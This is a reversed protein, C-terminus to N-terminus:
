KDSCDPSNTHGGINEQNLRWLDISEKNFRWCNGIRFAPLKNKRLYRYITIPHVHLYKALDKVTFVVEEAM